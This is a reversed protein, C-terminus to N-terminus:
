AVASAAIIFSLDVIIVVPQVISKKPFCPVASPRGYLVMVAVTVLLSLTVNM